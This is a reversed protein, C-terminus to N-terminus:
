VIADAGSPTRKGFSFLTYSLIHLLLFCWITLFHWKASISRLTTLDAEARNRIVFHNGQGLALTEALYHM